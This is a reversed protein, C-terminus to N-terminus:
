RGPLPANLLMVVVPHALGALGISLGMPFKVSGSIAKWGHGSVAPIRRLGLVLAIGLLLSASFVYSFISLTSVPIFLMLVSLFKVDGGGWLGVCFGAFGLAFVILAVVPRWWLDAPMMIAATVIFVALALLSFTNPIRMYRMDSWIVAMLLPAILFLPMLSM